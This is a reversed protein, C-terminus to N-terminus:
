HCLTKFVIAKCLNAQETRIFFCTYCLSKIPMSGSSNDSGNFAIVMTQVSWGTNLVAGYEVESKYWM